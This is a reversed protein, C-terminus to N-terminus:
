GGQTAKIILVRSDKLLRHQSWNNKSIIENEVAVAIGKSSIDLKELVETLNLGPKFSYTQDNVTVTIMNEINFLQLCSPLRKLFTLFLYLSM